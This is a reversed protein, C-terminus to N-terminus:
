ARQICSIYIICAVWFFRPLAFKFFYENKRYRAESATFTKYKELEKGKSIYMRNIFRTGLLSFLCLVQSIEQSYPPKLYGIFLLIIGWIIHFCPLRAALMDLEAELSDIQASEM